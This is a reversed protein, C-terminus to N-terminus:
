PVLEAVAEQSAVVTRVHPKFKIERSITNERRNTDRLNCVGVRWHTCVTAMKVSCNQVDGRLFSLHSGELICNFQLVLKM